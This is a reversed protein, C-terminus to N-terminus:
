NGPHWDLWDCVAEGMVLDRDKGTLWPLEETFLTVCERWSCKPQRALGITPLTRAVQLRGLVQPHVAHAAAGRRHRLPRLAGGLAVAPEAAAGAGLLEVLAAGPHEVPRLVRGVDDGEHHQPAQAVAQRQAVEALHEEQAADEDSPTSPGWRCRHALIRDDSGAARSGGAILMLMIPMSVALDM